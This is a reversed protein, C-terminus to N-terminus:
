FSLGLYFGAENKRLTNNQGGWRTYRIEPLLAFHGLRYRVGAVFSAGVELDSRFNSKLSFSNLASNEDVNTETGTQHLDAFRLAWGAV